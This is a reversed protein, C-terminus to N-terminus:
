EGGHLWPDPLSTIPLPLYVSTKQVRTRAVCNHVLCLKFLTVLNKGKIKIKLNLIKHFIYSKLHKILNYSLM